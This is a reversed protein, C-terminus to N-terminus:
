FNGASVELIPLITAYAIVGIVAAMIIIILPEVAASLREIVIDSSSELNDSISKLMTELEGSKEGVAVMHAIAPDIVGSDRLPTAIDAGALIRERAQKIARKMLTNGTVEAVVRLSEAMALGSGLLTSLTSAFRAVVRQKILPGFLPLSLLFKDRLFAGRSTRLFRKLGWVFGVIAAIVLLLWWSTLVYGVDMLRRTIWPLERGARAIENGIKPIVLTTLVLIAALCFVMLVVPYVMATKIKAEVRRRKEMFTAITLLSQGLIGTVEGVRVMSVYIVDFYDSYDKLADTFSEGTVVRDRIDCLANRFRVDSTQLTLVSLAETLKIGSTLLTAMQKTFDIIQTKNRKGFISFLATKGEAKSGVETVSSPHISRVRLQKRASYPSEATIAGKVKKGNAAIAIYHYRPM